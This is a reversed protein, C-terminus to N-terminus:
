EECVQLIDEMQGKYMVAERRLDTNEERLNSISIALSILAIMNVTLLIMVIANRKVM